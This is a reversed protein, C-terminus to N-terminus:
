LYSLKTKLSKSKTLCFLQKKLFSFFLRRFIVKLKFWYIQFQFFFFSIFLSLSYPFLPIFFFCLIGLLNKSVTLCVVKRRQPWSLTRQGFLQFFSDTVAAITVGAVKTESGFGVSGFRVSGPLPYTFTISYKICLIFLRFCADVGGWWWWRNQKNQNLHLISSGYLFRQQTLTQQALENENENENEAVWKLIM